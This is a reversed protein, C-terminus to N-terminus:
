FQMEFWIHIVSDYASGRNFYANANTPDLKIVSDFDRIAEKFRGLKDFSVAKEKWNVPM